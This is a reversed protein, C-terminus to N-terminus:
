HGLRAWKFFDSHLWKESYRGPSAAAPAASAGAKGQSVLRTGGRQQATSASVPATTGQRFVTTTGGGVKPKEVAPKEWTTEGTQSNYFYPVNYSEDWFEEWAMRVSAGRGHRSAKIGTGMACPCYRRGAWSHAVGPALFSLVPSPRALLVLFVGVAGPM